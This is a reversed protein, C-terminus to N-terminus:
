RRRSPSSRCGIFRTTSAVVTMAWFDAATPAATAEAPVVIPPPMLWVMEPTSVASPVTEVLSAAAAALTPSAAAWTPLACPM